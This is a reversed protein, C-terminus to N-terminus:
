SDPYPYITRGAPPSIARGILSTPTVDEWSGWSDRSGARSGGAAASGQHHRQHRQHRQHHRDPRGQPSACGARGGTTTAIGIGVNVPSSRLSLPPPPLAKSPPPGPSPSRPSSVPSVLDPIELPGEHPRRPRIPSSPPTPAFPNTSIATSPNDAADSLSITATGTSNPHREHTNYDSSTTSRTSMIENRLSSTRGKSYPSVPHANNELSYAPFTFSVPPPSKLRTYPPSSPEPPPSAASTVVSPAKQHMKEQRPELRSYTPSCIPSSPFSGRDDQKHSSYCSSQSNNSHHTEFPTGFVISGPRSSPGLLSPLLKRDRLPLPPTLPPRDTCYSQSPSILRQPSGAPAAFGQVIRSIRSRMDGDNDGLQKQRRRLVCILLIVASVLALTTCVVIAVIAETPLNRRSTIALTTATSTPLSSDTDPTATRTSPAETTDIKTPSSSLSPTSSTLRDVTTTPDVATSTSGASLAGLGPDQSPNAEKPTSSSCTNCQYSEPPVGPDSFHPFGQSNCSNIIKDVGPDQYLAAPDNWHLGCWKHDMYYLPYFAPGGGGSDSINQCVARNIDSQGYQSMLFARLCDDFCMSKPDSVPPAEGPAEFPCACDDRRDLGMEWTAGM